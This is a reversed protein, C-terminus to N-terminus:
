NAFSLNQLICAPVVTFGTKIRPQSHPYPPLTKASKKMQKGVQFLILMVETEQKGVEL